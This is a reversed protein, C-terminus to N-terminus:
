AALWPSPPASDSRNAARVSALTAADITIWPM